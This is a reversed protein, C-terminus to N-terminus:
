LTIAYRVELLDFDGMAETKSAGDASWGHHEYFGRSPMNSALVWLTARTFGDERLLRLTEKMLASGIGKSMFLPDVYIAYLEGTSEDADAERSAGISCFGVVLDGDVAVLTHTKARPDSLNAKWGQTRREVSLNDLFSDPMQGRYAHQWM